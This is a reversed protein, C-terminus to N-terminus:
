PCRFFITAAVHFPTGIERDMPEVGVTFTRDAHRLDLVEDPALGIAPLRSERLASM